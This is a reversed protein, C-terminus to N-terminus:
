EPPLIRRKVDPWSAFGVEGRDIAALRRELEQRQAPTLPLSDGNIALSDWLEEALQIRETPTLRSIDLEHPMPPHYRTEAAKDFLRLRAAM